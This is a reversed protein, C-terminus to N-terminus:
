ISGLAKLQVRRESLLQSLTCFSGPCAHTYQSADIVSIAANVYAYLLDIATTSKHGDGAAADAAEAASQVDYCDL